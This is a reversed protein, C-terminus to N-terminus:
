VLRGICNYEPFLEQIQSVLFSMIDKTLFYEPKSSTFTLLMDTNKHEIRLEDLLFANMPYTQGAEKGTPLLIVDQFCVYDEYPYASLIRAIEAKTKVGRRYRESLNGAFSEASLNSLVPYLSSSRRGSRNVRYLIWQHPNEDPCSLILDGHIRRINLLEIESNAVLYQCEADLRHAFIRHDFNIKDMCPEPYTSTKEKVQVLNWLPVYHYRVADQFEEFDVQIEQIVEKPNLDEVELLEVQFFKHLYATCITTWPLFNANFVHYLQEIKDLYKHNPRIVYKARFEGHETCVVGQYIRGTQAFQDVIQCDAELFLTHLPYPRGEEMYSLLEAVPYEQKETDEWFIPQLFTDTADFHALDTLGISIAYDNQVSQLEGFVRDELAHYEAQTYHHLELLLKEVVDKFLKRERLDQIELVRSSLYEEMDLDSKFVSDVM